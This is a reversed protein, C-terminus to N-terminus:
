TFSDIVLAGFRAIGKQAGDDGEASACRIGSKECLARYLEYGSNSDEVIVAESRGGDFALSWPHWTLWPHLAARAIM